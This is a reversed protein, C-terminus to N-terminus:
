TDEGSRSVRVLGRETVVLDVRRDLPGTPVCDVLQISVACGCLTPGGPSGAPFSRDYYGGGRGLRQGKDDFAVGPILVLDRADLRLAPLEGPPELVDYRGRVLDEWRAVQSFELRGADVCRPFLCSKGLQLAAEFVSRTPLEDGLSAYLALRRASRLEPAGGLVEAVARGAAELRAPPLARMEAALRRRLARKRVALDM